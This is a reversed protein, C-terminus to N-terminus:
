GLVSRRLISCGGCGRPGGARCARGDDDAPTVPGPGPTASRRPCSCASRRRRALGFGGAVLWVETVGWTRRVAEGIVPGIGLGGYIAVSFYSAAEGRRHAPALDQATTAAGVFVAAEGVGSLIRMAVLWPVADVLGYAVVSLAFTLSGGVM